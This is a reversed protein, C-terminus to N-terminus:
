VGSKAMDVRLKPIPTYPQRRWRVAKKLGRRDVHIRGQFDRKIFNVGSAM